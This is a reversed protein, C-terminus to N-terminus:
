SVRRGESGERGTGDQARFVMATCAIAPLAGFGLMSGALMSAVLKTAVSHFSM